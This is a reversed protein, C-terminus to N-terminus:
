APLPKFVMVFLTAVIFATALAGLLNWRLSLKSYAPPITGTDVAEQALTRQQAEIPLLALAWILGSVVLFGLPIHIWPQKLFGGAPFLGMARVLGTTVVGIGCVAIFIWDTLLVMRCSFLLIEPKRTRDALNKWVASVVMNGLFLAVLLLHLSKLFLDM